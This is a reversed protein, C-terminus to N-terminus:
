EAMTHNHFAEHIYSMRWRTEKVNLREKVKEVTRSFIDELQQLTFNLLLDEFILLDSPKGFALKCRDSNLAM